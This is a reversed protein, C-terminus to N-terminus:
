PGTLLIDTQHTTSAAPTTGLNVTVSGGGGPVTGSGSGNTTLNNVTAQAAANGCGAPLGSITVSAVNAGSLNQLIGIGASTCRPVTLRAAALSQSNLTLSAAAGVVTCAVAIALLIALERWM